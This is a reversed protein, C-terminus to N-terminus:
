AAAPLAFSFAAGSEEKEELRIVSDHLTLIRKVIILGLGGSSRGYGGRLPSPREFLDTRLEAPIGGGNDSVRVRVREAEFGLEM